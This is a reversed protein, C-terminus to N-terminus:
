LQVLQIEKGGQVILGEDVTKKEGDVAWIGKRFPIVVGTTGAPASITMTMKGTAPDIIWEAKISGRPTPVTGRAHRLGLDLPRFLWTAFGPSRATIGLAYRSLAPTAGSGWPHDLSTFLGFGPSGDPLVYEWSGGSFDPTNAAMDSYLGDLLFKAEKTAGIQFLSELLFGSLYPALRTDANGVVDTDELYGIQFELGALQNLQSQAREMSSVNSIISWAMDIYAFKPNTLSNRYHGITPDWLLSNVAEATSRAQARYKQATAHDGALDGLVAMNNLCYSLMCSTATGNTSGKFVSRAAWLNTTPNVFSLIFDVATTINAWRTTSFQSDGTAWYYDWISNLLDIDYDNLRPNPHDVERSSGDLGMIGNIPLSSTSGADNLAFDVTGRIYETAGTSVLITRGGMFFDGTWVMRDRKGGDLCVDFQNAAVGYEAQIGSEQMSRSYIEGTGNYVRVNRYFADQDQWGGFGISRDGSGPPVFPFDSIDFVLAREDNIFVTYIQFNEVVTTINTWTDEKIESHVPVSELRFAPLTTQNVIGFGQGVVLTNAPLLTSNHNAFTTEPPLNGTLFFWTATSGFSADVVWGSGGRAIKTQFSVNYNNPLKGLLEWTRAPRQGRVFVGEEGALEWTSPQTGARVCAHQTARPGLSFLRTWVENSCSFTGPLEDVPTTDTTSEMGLSSFVIRTGRILRIAMWRQAGQVMFSKLAGRKEVAFTEVRYSNALGAAFLYPGDGNVNDLGTFLESYRIEIQVPGTVSSVNFLTLGSVM